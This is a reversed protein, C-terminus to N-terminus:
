PNFRQLNSETPILDPRDELGLTRRVYNMLRMNDLTLERLEKDTRHNDKPHPYEDQHRATSSAAYKRAMRPGAGPADSLWANVIQVVAHHGGGKGSVRWGQDLLLQEVSKRAADYSQTHAKTWNGKSAAYLMLDCEGELLSEMVHRAFVPDAPIRQFRDDEGCLAVVEPTPWTPPGELPDATAANHALQSMRGDPAGGSPVGPRPPKDAHQNSGPGRPKPPRGSSM